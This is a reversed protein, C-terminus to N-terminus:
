ENALVLLRNSVEGMVTITVGDTTKEVQYEFGQKPYQGIVKDPTGWAKNLSVQMDGDNILHLIWRRLDAQHTLIAMKGNDVSIPVSGAM